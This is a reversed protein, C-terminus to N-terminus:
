LRTFANKIHTYADQIEESVDEWKIDSLNKKKELKAIVENFDKSLVKGLKELEDKADATGLAFHVRGIELRTKLRTFLAEAKEMLDPYNKELSKEVENILSILKVKQEEFMDRTEAKGLALQVQLEELRAKVKPDSEVKQKIENVTAQLNKKQRELEDLAEAKGLTLQLQLEQVIAKLNNIRNETKDKLTQSM